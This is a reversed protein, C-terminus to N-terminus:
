RSRTAPGFRKVPEILQNSFESETNCCSFWRIVFLDGFTLGSNLAM